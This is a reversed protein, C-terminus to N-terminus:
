QVVGGTFYIWVPPIMFGVAVLFALVRGLCYLVPTYRLHWIGLSQFASWFAHSLHFGLIVMSVVYGLVVWGNSFVEVVLRHLDRIEAGDVTVTYMPGYKFTKLHLAVFIFIIFGTYLMTAAGVSKRSERGASKYMEYKVPRARRKNVLLRIAAWVHVLLCTALMAEAAILLVKLSTLLHAYTNYEGPAGKLLPLNGAMHFTVFSLLILGTLSMLTKRGISSWDTSPRSSM